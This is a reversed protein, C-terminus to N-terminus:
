REVEVKLPKTWNKQEATYYLYTRSAPGTYSGPVAATVTFEIEKVVEPEITRWYFIVERGRLEYYDFLEAKQMEDLQEAKPEVGGPLGIIAVTMPQGANTVNTLTAKVNVTDGAKLRDANDAFTTQIKLPCDPHSSPTIAHYTM